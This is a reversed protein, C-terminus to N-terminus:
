CVPTSVSLCDPSHPKKHQLAVGHLPFKRPSCASTSVVRCCSLPQLLCLIAALIRSTTRQISQTCTATRIVNLRRNLFCNRACYVTIRLPLQIKPKGGRHMPPPEEGLIISHCWRTPARLHPSKEMKIGHTSGAPTCSYRPM